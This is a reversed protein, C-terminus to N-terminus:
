AKTGKKVLVVNASWPSHSPRCVGNAIMEDLQREVEVVWKAPMRRAREKIPSTNGTEISHECMSTRGTNKPDVAFLDKNWELVRVLGMYEQKELEPAVDFEESGSGLVVVLDDRMNNSQLGGTLTSEM